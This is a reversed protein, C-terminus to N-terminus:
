SSDPIREARVIFRDPATRRVRWHRDHPPKGEEEVRQDLTLSGDPEIRGAGVSRTKYPKRFIIKITGASETRGQFFRLPDVQQQASVSAPPAILLLVPAAVILRLASM